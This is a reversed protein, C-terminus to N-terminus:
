GTQRLLDVKTNVNNQDKEKDENWLHMLEAYLDKGMEEDWLYKIAKVIDQNTMKEKRVPYATATAIVLIVVFAAISVSAMVTYEQFLITLNQLEEKYSSSLLHMCMCDHM